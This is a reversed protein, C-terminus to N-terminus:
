GITLTQAGCAPNRQRCLVRYRVLHLVQEHGLEEVVALLALLAERRGLLLAALHGAGVEKPGDDGVGVRAVAPERGDHLQGLQEDLLAGGADVDLVLRGAGLLAAVHRALHQHGDALVDVPQNGDARLRVDHTPPGDDPSRTALQGPGPLSRSAMARVSESAAVSMVDVM